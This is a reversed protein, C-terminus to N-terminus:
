FSNSLPFIQSDLLINWPILKREFQGVETASDITEPALEYVRRVRAFKEGAKQLRTTSFAHQM